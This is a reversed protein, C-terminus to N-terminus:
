PTDEKTRGWWMLFGLISAAFLVLIISDPIM